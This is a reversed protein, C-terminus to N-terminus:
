PKEDRYKERGAERSAKMALPGCVANAPFRSRHRHAGTGRKWSM